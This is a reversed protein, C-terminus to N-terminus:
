AENKLFATGTWSGDDNRELRVTGGFRLWGFCPDAEDTIIDCILDDYLWFAYIDEPCVAFSLACTFGRDSSNEKIYQWGRVKVERCKMPSGEPANEFLEALMNAYCEAVKSFCSDGDTESSGADIVAQASISYKIDRFEEYWRELELSALRSEYEESGVFEAPMSPYACDIRFIGDVLAFGVDISRKAPEAASYFTCVTSQTKANGRAFDSGHVENVREVIRWARKTAEEPDLQPAATEPMEATESSVPEASEAVTNGSAENKPADTNLVGPVVSSSRCGTFALLAMLVVSIFAIYRKM